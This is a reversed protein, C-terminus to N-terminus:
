RFHSVNAREEASAEETPSPSFCSFYFIPYRPTRRSLSKEKGEGTDGRASENRNEEPEARKSKVEGWKGALVFCM